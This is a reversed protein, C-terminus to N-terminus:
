GNVRRYAISRNREAPIELKQSPLNRYAGALTRSFDSHDNEKELETSDM